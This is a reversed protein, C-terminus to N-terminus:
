SVEKTEQSSVNRGFFITYPNKIDLIKVLMDIETLSLTHCSQVKKCFENKKMKLKMALEKMSYESLEILKMLENNMINVM